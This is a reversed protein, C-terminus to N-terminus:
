RRIRPSPSGIAIDGWAGWGSNGPGWGGRLAPRIAFPGLVLEGRIGLGLYQAWTSTNPCDERWLVPGAQFHPHLRYWAELRSLLVMNDSAYADDLIQQIVPTWQDRFDIIDGLTDGSSATLHIGSTDIAVIAQHLWGQMSTEIELPIRSPPQFRGELRMMIGGTAIRSAPRRVVVGLDAWLQNRDSGTLNAGAFVMPWDQEIWSDWLFTRKPDIVFLGVRGKGIELTAESPSATAHREHRISWALRHPRAVDWAVTQESRVGQRGDAGLVVVIWGPSTPAIRLDTGDWVVGDPLAGVPGIRVSDGEPSIAVPRYFATDGIRLGRSATRTRWVPPREARVPYAVVRESSSDRTHFHFVVRHVGASEPRVTLREGNLVTETTGRISDLVVGQLRWSEISASASWEYTRGAVLTDWTPGIVLGDTSVRRKQALVPISGTLTSSDGLPDTVVLRLPASGGALSDPPTWSVIGSRADYTAGAPLRTARVYLSGSPHDSDNPVPRFAWPVGARAAPISGVLVPPRNRRAEVTARLTDTRGGPARAVLLLPWSGDKPAGSLTRTAANWRLGDPVPSLLDVRIDGSAGGASDVVWARWLFPRDAFVRSPPPTTFFPHPNGARDHASADGVPSARLADLFTRPALIVLDGREFSLQMRGSAPMTGTAAELTRLLAAGLAYGKGDRGSVLRRREDWVAPNARARLQAVRGQARRLADLAGETQLTQWVDGDILVARDPFRIIDGQQLGTSPDGMLFVPQGHAKFRGALRAVMAPDSLTAVGYGAVPGGDAAAPANWLLFAAALAHIM